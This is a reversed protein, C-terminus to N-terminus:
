VRTLFAFLRAFGEWILSLIILAATYVVKWAISAIFLGLILLIIIM